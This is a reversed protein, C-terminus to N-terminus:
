LGSTHCNLAAMALPWTDSISNWSGHQISTRTSSALPLTTSSTLTSTFPFPPAKSTVSVL